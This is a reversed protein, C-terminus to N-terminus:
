IFFSILSVGLAVKHCLITKYHFCGKFTLLCRDNRCLKGLAERRKGKETVGHKMNQLPQAAKCPTFGLELFYM